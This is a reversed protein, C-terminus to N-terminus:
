KGKKGDKTHGGVVDNRRHVKGDSGLTMVTLVDGNPAIRSMGGRQGQITTGGRQGQITTGGQTITLPVKGVGGTIDIMTEDEHGKSVAVRGARDSNSNGVVEQYISKADVDGCAIKQIPDVYSASHPNNCINTEDSPKTEKVDSTTDSTTTTPSLLRNVEKVAIGPWEKDDNAAPPIAPPAQPSNYLINDLTPLTPLMSSM